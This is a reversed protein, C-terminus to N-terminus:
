VAVTYLTMLIPEETLFSNHKRSMHVCRRVPHNRCVGGYFSQDECHIVSIHCNHLFVIRGFYLRMVKYQCCYSTTRFSLGTSMIFCTTLMQLKVVYLAFQWKFYLVSFFYLFYARGICM